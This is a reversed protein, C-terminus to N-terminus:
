YSGYYNQGIIVVTIKVTKSYSEVIAIRGYPVAVDWNQDPVTRGQIHLSNFESHLLDVEINADIDEKM